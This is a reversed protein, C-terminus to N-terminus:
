GVQQRSVHNIDHGERSSDQESKRDEDDDLSSTLMKTKGDM